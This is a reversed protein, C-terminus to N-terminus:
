EGSKKNIMYMFELTKKSLKLYKNFIFQWIREYVYGEIPDIEKSVFNILFEYFSKPRNLINDKSVLFQAGCYYKIDIDDVAKLEFLLDLFYYIPVGVPHQKSKAGSIKEIQEVDGWFVIGKRKLKLDNKIIPDINKVNEVFNKCHDIPNGQCFVTYDSLNDYNSIIHHLYTHSERGVNLLKNLSSSEKDKNYVKIKDLNSCDKIWSIDEKYRAVVIEKTYNNM